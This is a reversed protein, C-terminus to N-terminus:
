IASCRLPGYASRLAILAAHLNERPNVNSGLSLYIQTM